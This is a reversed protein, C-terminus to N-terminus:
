YWGYQNEHALAATPSGYRQAIYNGMATLEGAASSTNGGYQAYESAGSIFQAIGYAGSTPNKATLSGSGDEKSIVGEWATIESAGWGHKAAIPALTSKSIGSGSDAPSSSGGAPDAAAPTSASSGGGFASQVLPVGKDIIVAGAALLAFALPM